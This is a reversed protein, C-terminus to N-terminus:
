CSMDSARPLYHLSLCLRSGSPDASASGHQLWAPCVSVVSHSVASHGRTWIPSCARLVRFIMQSALPPSSINTRLCVLPGGSAEGIGTTRWGSSNPRNGRNANRRTILPLVPPSPRQRLLIMVRRGHVTVTRTELSESRKGRGDVLHASCRCVRVCMCDSIRKVYGTSGNRQGSAASSIRVGFVTLGDRRSSASSKNASSSREIELLAPPRHRAPRFPSQVGVAM